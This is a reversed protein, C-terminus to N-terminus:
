QVVRATAGLDGLATFSLAGAEPYVNLSTTADDATCSGGNGHSDRFPQPCSGIQSQSFSAGPACICVAKPCTRGSKPLCTVSVRMAGSGVLEVRAVRMDSSSSAFPRSAGANQGLLITPNVLKVKPAFPATIKGLLSAGSCPKWKSFAAIDDDDGNGHMQPPTCSDTPADSRTGGQIAVFAFALTLVVLVIIVIKV